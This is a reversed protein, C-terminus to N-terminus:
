FGRECLTANDASVDGNSWFICHGVKCKPTGSKKDVPCEVAPNHGVYIKTGSAFKRTMALGFQSNNKTAYPGLPAGLANTYEKPLESGTSKGDPHLWADCADEGAGSWGEGVGFYAGEYVGLLFTALSSVFNAGTGHDTHWILLCTEQSLGCKMKSWHVYQDLAMGREVMGGSSFAMAEHTPYNTIITTERGEIKSLNLSMQYYSENMGAKFAAVQAKTLNAKGAKDNYWGNRDGDVFAGDVHGTAVADTIRSTWHTQMDQDRFDYSYFFTDVTQNTEGHVTGSTNVYTGDPRKLAATKPNAAVWKGLSYFSRAWDSEVYMLCQVKSNIAKVKRCSESIKAEAQDNVPKEFLKHNKEFVTIM